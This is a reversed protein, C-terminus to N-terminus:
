LVDKRFVFSKRIKKENIKQVRDSSLSQIRVNGNSNIPDLVRHVISSRAFSIVILDGQKLDKLHCSPFPILHKKPRSKM